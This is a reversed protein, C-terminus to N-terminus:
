RKGVHIHTRTRGTASQTLRTRIFPEPIKVTADDSFTVIGLRDDPGLTELITRAAHKVLDLVSLGAGEKDDGDEVEPMPAASSMSGSVDIVLVIDCSARKPNHGQLPPPQISVVFANSEPTTHIKITAQEEAHTKTKPRMALGTEEEMKVDIESPSTDYKESDVAFASPATPNPAYRLVMGFPLGSCLLLLNTTNAVKFYNGSFARSVLFPQLSRRTRPKVINAAFTLLHFHRSRFM